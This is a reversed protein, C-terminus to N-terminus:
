FIIKSDKSGNALGFVVINDCVVMTHDWVVSNTPAYVGM